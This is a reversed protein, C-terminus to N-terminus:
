CGMVGIEGWNVGNNGWVRFREGGERFNDINKM